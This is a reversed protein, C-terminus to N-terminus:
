HEDNDETIRVQLLCLNQFEQEFSRISQRICPIRILSALRDVTVFHMDPCGPPRIERPRHEIKGAPGLARDRGVAPDHATVQVAEERRIAEAMGEEAPQAVARGAADGVLGPDFTDEVVEGFVQFGM